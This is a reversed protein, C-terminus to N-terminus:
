EAADIAGALRERLVTADLGRVEAIKDRGAQGAILVVDGRGLGLRAALLRVVADNARGKEAVARVAVRLADGYPGLLADRRAGPVVRLRLRVGSTSPTLALDSLDVAPPRPRRRRRM